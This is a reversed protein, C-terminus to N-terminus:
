SLCLRNGSAIEKLLAAPAYNLIIKLIFSFSSGSSYASPTKNKGGLGPVQRSRKELYM